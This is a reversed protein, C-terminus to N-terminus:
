TVTKWQRLHMKADWPFHKRFYTTRFANGEYVRFYLYDSQRHKKKKKMSSAVTISATGM